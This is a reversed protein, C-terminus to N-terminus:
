AADAYSAVISIDLPVDVPFAGFLLRTASAAAARIADAVAEVHEVPTHVIVEDHLFFVLHPERNFPAAAQGPIAPTVTPDNAPASPAATTSVARTNAPTAPSADTPAPAPATDTDALPADPTTPTAPPFAALRRRLDAMWCLAWDAASAQVVFNRTFRGWDRSERRARTLEADNAAGEAARAQSEWWESGPRPASRGLRSTVVEGREGARAATEVFALATPYARALRPLLRGSEGTTAGYMAGLMAVKAQARTEVAGSAVIGAYLDTGRGAAAMATDGAIGALIRPELQAADAVVLMWGDDATVARRIQKPLQLAGGGRTAWRGSVVGGPVYDPVFRGNRVWQQMWSWGNASALRSLKKYELLPEIAPHVLKQLEWSRTTAVSLGANRLARLVDAPSDPNLDAIGTETRIREALRELREPRVGAATRPGLLSTLLEDHLDERWPLGAHSMEAAILAGASEAALLLRLRNPDTSERLADLQLRFESLAAAMTLSHSEAELLTAGLASDYAASAAAGPGEGAASLDFLTVQERAGAPTAPQLPSAADWPSTSARALATEASLSSSRLIAHSLRLDHCREVRVGVALLEAYVSATDAWVWRPASGAPAETGSGTTEVPSGTENGEHLSGSAGAHQREVAAVAAAVDAQAVRDVPRADSGDDNLTALSFSSDPSACLVFYM